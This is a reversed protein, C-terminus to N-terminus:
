RDSHAVRNARAGEVEQMYEVEKSLYARRDIIKQEFMVIIEEASIDLLECLMVEDLSKLYQKLLDLPFM